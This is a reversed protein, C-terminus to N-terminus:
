EPRGSSTYEKEPEFNRGEEGWNEGGGGGVGVGERGHKKESGIVNQWSDDQPPLPMDLPWLATVKCQEM